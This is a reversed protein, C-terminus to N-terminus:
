RELGWLWLKSAFELLPLKDRYFFFKVVPDFLSGESEFWDERYSRRLIRFFTGPLRFEDIDEFSM